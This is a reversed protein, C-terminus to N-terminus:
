LNVIFTSAIIILIKKGPIPVRITPLIPSPIAWNKIHSTPTIKVRVTTNDKILIGRQKAMHTQLITLAAV